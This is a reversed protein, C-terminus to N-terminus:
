GRGDLRARLAAARTKPDRGVRVALNRAMQNLAARNELARLEEMSPVIGAAVLSVQEGNHMGVRLRQVPFGPVNVALMAVLRFMGGIRRWDGSLKAARLEMLRGASVGPKVVGAVWIGHEDEGSAVIAVMSGTNDYHETARRPDIGVTPAHGTAMTVTGVPVRAGSATIVEGLRYFDHFGERPAATCAGPYGIHCADWTAGHGQFLHWQGDASAQITIPTPGTFNPNEFAYDPPALVETASAYLAQVPADLGSTTFTQPMLGGAKLHGALHDYAARRDSLSMALNTNTLLAGVGAACATLNAVGISGDANIEHHLLRCDLRSISGARVKAGDAWAFAERAVDWALHSSLRSMHRSSFWEGDSTLENNADGSAAPANVPVPQPMPPVPAMADASVLHIQAEEFASIAVMTAGRIRGRTFMVTEPEAMMDSEDTGEPFILEVDSNGVSDVDVSVWKNFGNEVSTYAKMGEDTSLDFTGRARIVASNAPDRWMQDLRGVVVSGMHEGFNERAWSFPQPTPAFELSGPAFMRGDGTPIGEIVMVGEFAGTPGAAVQNPTQPVDTNGIGGVDGGGDGSAVPAEMADALSVTEGAMVVPDGVILPIDVNLGAFAVRVRDLTIPGVRSIAQALASVDGSYALCVHPIWPSHQEPICSDWTAGYLASEVAWRASMLGDTGEVNLVVAPEAGLPNWLAAGFGTVQLAPQGLVIETVGAVIAQRAASDYQAADGLYFLTLHLEEPAEGGPIALRAIDEPSPVLAIMAGTSEAIVDSDTDDDGDPEEDDETAPTSVVPAAAVMGGSRAGLLLGYANATADDEDDIVHLQVNEPDTLPTTM